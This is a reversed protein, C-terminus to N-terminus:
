RHLKKFRTFGMQSRFSLTNKLSFGKSIDTMFCSSLHTLTMGTIEFASVNVRSSLSANLFLTPLQDRYIATMISNAEVTSPTLPAHFKLEM